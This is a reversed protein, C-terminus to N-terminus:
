ADHNRRTWDGQNPTYSILRMKTDVMPPHMYVMQNNLMAM